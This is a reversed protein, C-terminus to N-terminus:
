MIIKQGTFYRCYPTKPGESKTAIYAFMLEITPSM